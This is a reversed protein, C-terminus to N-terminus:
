APTLRVKLSELGRFTSSKRWALEDAPTAIEIGAFRELLLGFAIQGEARALQAGLCHHPGWAFSLPPEPPTQGTFRTIDLRDPDAYVAPDRNAAGILTIVHQGSPLPTGDGFATDEFSARGLVHVPSDYRLLEEIASGILEPRERLLALQDPNSCLALTGLGILDTMTQFGAGFLLVVVQVLESVSLRDGDIEVAGLASILDDKPDDRRLGVLATFYEEMESLAGDAVRLVEPPAFTELGSSATRTLRRLLPWDEEPVGVLEGIVMVPLPFGFSTVLDVEGGAGINEVMADLLRNVFMTLRPRLTQVRRPTFARSILGRLRTHPEGDLFLLTRARDQGREDGLQPRQASKDLSTNKLAARCEEHTTLVWAVGGPQEMRYRPAASRLAHYHAYPSSVTAPAKMLLEMVITQPDNSVLTDTM